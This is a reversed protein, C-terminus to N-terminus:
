KHIETRIHVVPNHVVGLRKVETRQNNDANPKDNLTLKRLQRRQPYDAHNTRQQDEITVAHLVEQKSDAIRQNRLILRNM